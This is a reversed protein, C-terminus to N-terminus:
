MRKRKKTEKEVVCRTKSDLQHAQKQKTYGEGDRVWLQSTPAPTKETFVESFVKFSPVNERNKDGAHLTGYPLVLVDGAKFVILEEDVIRNEISLSAIWMYNKPSLGLFFSLGEGVGQEVSGNILTLM